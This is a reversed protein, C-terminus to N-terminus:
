PAPVLDLTGDKALATSEVWGSSPMPVESDEWDSPAEFWVTETTEPAQVRGTLHGDPTRTLQFTSTQAGEDHKATFDITTGNDMWTEINYVIKRGILSRMIEVEMLDPNIATITFTLSGTTGGRLDVDGEWWEYGNTYVTWQKMGKGSTASVWHNSVTVLQSGGEGQEPTVVQEGGAGTQSGGGELSVGGEQAPPTPPMPKFAIYFVLTLAGLGMLIGLAALIYKSVPVTEVLLPTPPPPTDPPGEHIGAGTQPLGEEPSTPTVAEPETTSPEPAKEYSTEGPRVGERRIPQKPKPPPRRPRKPLFGEGHKM